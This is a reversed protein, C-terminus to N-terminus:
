ETKVLLEKGKKLDDHSIFYGDIKKGDYTINRIKRGANEKRITFHTDDLSFVVKDFVPVTIIYEPDAPSFTYLGIANLVYWASLGGSDDMGAFALGEKGMNYYDSMLLDIVKQAKEQKGVFYYKYAIGQSPQNGACYQGIFATSNDVEYGGWPVIFLSDLKQEFADKSPFLAILGEPDHPAFFTSQWGNAERYMFVYYPITPDFPTVWDGNDFRGRMFGTSVDFLNKFNGSRQMMTRYTEMDGLEKALLAVAYDSYSYELTKTVAAKAEDEETMPTPNAVRNEAIWGREMYEGLYPRARRNEVTANRLMFYYASDVDFGRLGRLYSGTVFVPAFDGHFYTPMFRTFKAREIISSIIDNTVEPMLMGM